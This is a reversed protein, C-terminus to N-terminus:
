QGSRSSGRLIQVGAPASSAAPAAVPRPAPKQLALAPSVDAAWTSVVKGAPEADDAETAISRLALALRGLGSAVAIMEAQRATAELTVTRPVRLEAPDSQGSVAEKLHQDMALVRLDTLVTEGVAKQSPKTDDHEFTQTLILDVRDGPWILGSAASVADVAVSVARNGPTLVAALFGRDGPSVIQGQILPEDPAFNRRAVSGIVADASVYTRNFYGAPVSGATWDQWRVDDARILTGASVTKAAVMIAAGLVPAPAAEATGVTETPLSRVVVIGIIGLSLSVLGILLIRLFM